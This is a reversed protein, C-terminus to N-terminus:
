DRTIYGLSVKFEHDEQRCRRLVPISIHAVIGLLFNLEKSTM